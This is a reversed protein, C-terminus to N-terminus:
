KDLLPLFIPEFSMKQIQISVDNEQEMIVQEEQKLTEEVPRGETSEKIDLMKENRRKFIDPVESSTKALEQHKGAILEEGLTDTGADDPHGEQKIIDKEAGKLSLKAEDNQVTDERDLNKDQGISIILNIRSSFQLKSFM